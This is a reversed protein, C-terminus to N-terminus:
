WRVVGLPGKVDLGVTLSERRDPLLLVTGELVYSFDKGYILNLESLVFEIFVASLFLQVFM